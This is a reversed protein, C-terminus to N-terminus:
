VQPQLTVGATAAVNEMCPTMLTTAEYDKAPGKVRYSIIIETAKLGELRVQFKAKYLDKICLHDSTAVWYGEKNVEQFKLSLFLHARKGSEVFYVDLLDGNCVYEYERFVEISKNESIQYFGDERYLVYDLQPRSYRIMGHVYEQHNNTQHVMNRSFKWSGILASMVVKPIHSGNRGSELEKEIDARGAEAITEDNQFFAPVVVDGLEISFKPLDDGLLKSISDMYGIYDFRPFQPRPRQARIKRSVDLAEDYQDKTLHLTGSMVKAALRAQQEMVGMYPGRYYGCFALNPLSPHLTQWGLTLPSFKDAEDYELTDLVSEDLLPRLDSLFGTCCIVKSVNPLVIRREDHSEISDSKDVINLGTHDDVSELRGHFVEITGDAVLDLYYDSVAVMPPLSFDRPIGLVDAQRRGLLAHIMEHRQRCSEPTLLTSEPTHVPKSRRYFALDIPLFSNTSSSKKAATTPVLRPTVWPIYPLINVVRSASQSVDVAIELASFSSGVVAVTENSFDEHSRYDKSHLIQCGTATGGGTSSAAKIGPPFYPKSFFGTAVIVGGFDKSHWTNSMTDTWEVRYGLDRSKDGIEDGGPIDSLSTIKTVQCSFLFCDPSIYEDAYDHLYRSMDTSSPFTPTDSPWLFDSFRCTHKSLNTHLGHWMKSNEKDVVSGDLNLADPSASWAGGLTSAAEFICCRVGSALLHRSAVLGATGAGIVAVEIM